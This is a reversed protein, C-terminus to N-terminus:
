WNARLKYETDCEPEEPSLQMTMEGNSHLCYNHQTLESIFNLVSPSLLFYSITM